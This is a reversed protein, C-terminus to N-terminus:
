QIISHAKVNLFNCRCTFHIEDEIEKSQYLECTCEELRINHYGVTEIGLPLIIGCCLKAFVSKQYKPLFHCFM